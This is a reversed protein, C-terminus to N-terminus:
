SVEVRDGPDDDDFELRTDISSTLARRDWPAVSVQVVGPGDAPLRFSFQHSWNMLPCVGASGLTGITYSFNTLWSLAAPILTTRSPCWVCTM